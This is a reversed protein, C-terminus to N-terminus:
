ARQILRLRSGGKIHMPNMMFQRVMATNVNAKHDLQNGTYQENVLIDDRLTDTGGTAIIVDVIATDSPIQLDSAGSAGFTVAAAAVDTWAGYISKVQGTRLDRLILTGTFAAAVIFGGRNIKNIEKGTCIREVQIRSREM